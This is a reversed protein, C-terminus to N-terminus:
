NFVSKEGRRGEVNEKRWNKKEIKKTKHTHTNKKTQKQLDSSCVSRCVAMGEGKAVCPWGRGDGWIM